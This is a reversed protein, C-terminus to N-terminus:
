DFYITVFEDGEGSVREGNACPTEGESCGFHLLAQGITQDDLTGSPNNPANPEGVWDYTPDQPNPLNVFAHAGAITGGMLIAGLLLKSKLSLKKM